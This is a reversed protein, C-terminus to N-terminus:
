NGEYVDEIEDLEFGILDGCEYEMELIPVNNVEGVLERDRVATVEVWMHETREAGTPDKGKFGLKVFKGIFSEPAEKAYKENPKPSHEPCVIGVNHHNQDSM